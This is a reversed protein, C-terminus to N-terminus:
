FEKRWVNHNIYDTYSLIIREVKKSVNSFSYDRVKEFNRKIKSQTISSNIARLISGKKIDTM